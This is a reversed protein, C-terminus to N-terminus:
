RESWDGGLSIAPRTSITITKLGWGSNPPRVLIAPWGFHLIRRAVEDVESVQRGPGGFHERDLIFLFKRFNYKIVITRLVKLAGIDKEKTRVIDPPTAPLEKLGDVM